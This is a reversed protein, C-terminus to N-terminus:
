VTRTVQSCEPFRQLTDRENQRLLFLRSVKRLYFRSEELQQKTALNDSEKEVGHVTTQGAGETSPIEWALINSHTAMEKMVSNELGLSRICQM